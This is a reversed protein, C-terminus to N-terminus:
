AKQEQRESTDAVIRGVKMLASVVAAILRFGQALPKANPDVRALQYAKKLDEGAPHADAVRLDYAGALPGMVTRAADPSIITALYKELSKLSGWKENKPPLAIKQLNSVDIRDAVIRMLDKALAFLGDPELARFRSISKVLKATDAHARFLPAGVAHTFLEDLGHLVEPLAAEPATTKAVIARAQASLLEASVGGEPAINYGAWIRQQWAPLKAIDYALVNVLGTANLGFHTSYSASLGVGGTEQTYWEFSAGRHKVIAPVVEPRLWLWRLDSENDLEESSKSEGSADVIYRIGTPVEDGRVRVSHVAPDIEEDRWLASIVRVLKRGRHQGEWQEMKTNSDTEPGPNPVEEDPDVDTRGVRFVAYRGELHGGEILSHVRVEFREGSNEEQCEEPSGADAVDAVVVSRSRFLSTRLFMSRAALYDRLFENKIEIAVPGGHSDRRLRVVECYDENPRVWFDAERKLGLAFVLDQHLHWETPEEADFHQRLVLEIGLDKKDHYQYVDAPKYYDKDAWVRQDHGRLESWSLQKADNRRDTPIAVSRLGFYEERHGVYGYEGQKEIWEAVYLPIWVANALRRKRIQRMEFWTKDM